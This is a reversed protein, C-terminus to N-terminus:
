VQRSGCVVIASEGDRSSTTRGASAHVAATRAAAAAGWASPSSWRSSSASSRGGDVAGCASARASPRLCRGAGLQQRRARLVVAGALGTAVGTALGRLGGERAGAIPM